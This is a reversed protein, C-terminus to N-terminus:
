SPNPSGIRSAIPHPVGTTVAFTVAMGSTAPPAARSTSGVETSCIALAISCITLSVVNRWCNRLCPRVRDASNEHALVAALTCSRNFFPSRLYATQCFLVFPSRYYNGSIM